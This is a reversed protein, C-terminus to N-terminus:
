EHEAMGDQGSTQAEGKSRGRVLKRCGDAIRHVLCMGWCVVPSVARRLTARMWASLRDTVIGLLAGLTHYWAFFGCGAGLIALLRFQGDNIYYLLLIISVGGLIGFLIDACILLVRVPIARWGRGGTGCVGRLFRLLSWVIGMGVGTAVSLSFLLGLLGQSIEM